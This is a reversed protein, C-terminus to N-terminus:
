KNKLLILTPFGEINYYNILEREKDTGDINIESFLLNNKKNYKLLNYWIPNFRICSPCNTMKFYLLINKNNINDNALDTETM